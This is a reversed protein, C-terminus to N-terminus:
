RKAALWVAIQVFFDEIEPSFDGLRRVLAGLQVELDRIMPQSEGESFQLAVCVNRLRGWHQLRADQICFHARYSPSDLELTRVEKRICRIPHGRGLLKAKDPGTLVRHEFGRALLIQLEAVRSWEQLQVGLAASPGAIDRHPSGVGDLHIRHEGQGQGAPKHLSRALVSAHEWSVVQRGHTFVPVSRLPAPSSVAKHTVAELGADFVVELGFHPAWPVAIDAQCSKMHRVLGDSVVAFDLTRGAANKCTFEVNTPTM